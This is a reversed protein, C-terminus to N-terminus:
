EIYALSILEAICAPKEEGQIEVVVKMKFKAGRPIQNYELLSVRARINAGVKTANTFRVRDMGYNIGMTRQEVSFTQGVLYPTLSLVLFGHAITGGYPSEEKARADDIHIWQHDETVDAFHNIRDQTMLMWPGVGLEKGVLNALDTISALTTKYAGEM